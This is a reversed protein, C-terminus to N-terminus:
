SPSHNIAPKGQAPSKASIEKEVQPSPLEGRQFVVCRNHETTLCYHQQYDLKVPKPEEIRYCYNHLSPYAMLSQPDDGLGIHPCRAEKWPPSSEVITSGSSPDSHLAALRARATPHQPDIKIVQELCYKEREPDGILSALQIWAAVDHHNSM